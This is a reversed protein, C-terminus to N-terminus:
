EFFVHWVLAGSFQQVTGLFQLNGEGDPMPNGTGVIFIDLVLTTPENPDLLVWITLRDGQSQVSLPRAGRPVAIRQRDTVILPFKWIVNM